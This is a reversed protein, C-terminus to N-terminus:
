HTSVTFDLNEALGLEWFRVLNKLIYKPKVLFNQSSKKKKKKKKNLNERRYKYLLEFTKSSDFSFIRKNMCSNNSEKLVTVNFM